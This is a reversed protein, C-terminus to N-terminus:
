MKRETEPNAEYSTPSRNIGADDLNGETYFLRALRVNQHAM